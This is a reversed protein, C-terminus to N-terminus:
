KHSILKIGYLLQDRTFPKTVYYDAGIQYGTVFDEPNGQCTLMMVPINQTEANLKLRTIVDFGSMDPMQLDLIICLLDLPRPQQELLRFAENGGDASLVEYSSAELMTRVLSRVM